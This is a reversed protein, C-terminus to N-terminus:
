NRQNLLQGRLIFFKAGGGIHRGYSSGERTEFGWKKLWLSENMKNKGNEMLLVAIPLDRKIKKKTLLSLSYGM